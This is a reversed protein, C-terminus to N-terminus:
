KTEDVVKNWGGNVIGGAGVNFAEARADPDMEALNKDRTWYKSSMVLALSHSWDGLIM